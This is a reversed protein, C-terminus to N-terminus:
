KNNSSALSFGFHASLMFVTASIQLFMASLGGTVKWSAAWDNHNKNTIRCISDFADDNEIAIIKDRLYAATEYQMNKSAEEMEETLQKLIKDVKGELLDIIEDIQKKYDEKSVYGM